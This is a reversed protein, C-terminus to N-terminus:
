ATAPSTLELELCQKGDHVFISGCGHLRAEALAGEARDVVQQMDDGNAAGAIGATVSLQLQKDGLPIVCDAVADRVRQGVTQANELPTGPLLIAFRGNDYKALLDMDRLLIELYQAVTDLMVDGIPQGFKSVLQAFKDVNVVVISIPLGFRQAESIRRRLENSFTEFGPLRDLTPTPISPTAAAEPKAPTSPSKEPAKAAPQVPTQKPAHTIPLSKVGNHYHANNRGAEKCAYLAEDARRILSAIDEEGTIEALGISATVRLDVGEFSFMADGIAKRAAEAFARGNEVTTNPLLVAFEEGGYRCVIHSEKATQKLVRAVGRLVEDGAQHGHTDNFKKFHDVDIMYLGFSRQEQKWTAFLNEIEDDFARRNNIKTLKDTRADTLHTEIEAAQKKLREEAQALQSELQENAALMDAVTKLVADSLQGSEDGNAQIDNLETTAVQMRSSHAGVDRAVNSALERVENLADRARESEARSNKSGARFFVWGVALGAALMVGGFILDIVVMPLAPVANVFM